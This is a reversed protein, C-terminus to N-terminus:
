GNIRRSAVIIFKDIGVHIVDYNSNAFVRAVEAEDERYRALVIRGKAISMHSAMKVIAQAYGKGRYSKWTWLNFLTLMGDFPLLCCGSSCDSKLVAILGSRTKSLSDIRPHWAKPFVSYMVQVDKTVRIEM